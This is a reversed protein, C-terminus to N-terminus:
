RSTHRIEFQPVWLPVPTNVRMRVYILGAFYVWKDIKNDKFDSDWLTKDVRSNQYISDIILQLEVLVPLKFYFMGERFRYRM